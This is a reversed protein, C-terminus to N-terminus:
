QVVNVGLFEVRCGKPIKLKPLQLIAKDVHYVVEAVTQLRARITAHVWPIPVSGEVVPPNFVVEPPRDIRSLSTTWWGVPPPFVSLGVCLLFVEVTGSM